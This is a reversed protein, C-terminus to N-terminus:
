EHESVGLHLHEHRKNVPQAVVEHEDPFTAPSMKKSVKEYMQVEWTM